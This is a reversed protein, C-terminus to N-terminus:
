GHTAMEKTRAREAESMGGWVGHPQAAAACEGRVPCRRCVGKAAKIDAPTSGFFVARRRPSACRAQRLWEPGSGTMLDSLARRLDEFGDPNKPRAM